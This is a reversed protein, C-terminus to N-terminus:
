GCCASALPSIFESNPFLAYYYSVHPQPLNQRDHDHRRCTSVCLAGCGLPKGSVRAVPPDVFEGCPVVVAATASMEVNVGPLRFFCCRPRPVNRFPEQHCPLNSHDFAGRPSSPSDVRVGRVQHAAIAQVGTETDTPIWLRM